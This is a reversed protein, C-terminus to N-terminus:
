ARGAAKPAQRKLFVTLHPPKQSLDQTAGFAEWGDAGLENLNLLFEDQEETRDQACAMYEWRTRHSHLKKTESM